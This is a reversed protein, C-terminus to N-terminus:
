EENMLEIMRRVEDRALYEDCMGVIRGYREIDNATMGEADSPAQMSMLYFYDALKRINETHRIVTLVKPDHVSDPTM